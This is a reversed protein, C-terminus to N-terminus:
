TESNLDSNWDLTGTESNWDLSQLPKRFKLHALVNGGDKRRM